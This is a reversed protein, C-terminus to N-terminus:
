SQRRHMAATLGEPRLIEGARVSAFRAENQAPTLEPEDNQASLDQMGARFPFASAIDAAVRRHWENLTLRTV